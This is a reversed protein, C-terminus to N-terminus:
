QNFLDIDIGILALFLITKMFPLKGPGVLYSRHKEVQIRHLSMIVEQNTFKKELSIDEVIKYM